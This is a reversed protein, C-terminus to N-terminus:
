VSEREKGKMDRENSEERIRKRRDKREAQRDREWNCTREKKKSEQM